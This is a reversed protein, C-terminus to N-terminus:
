GAGESVEDNKGRRGLVTRVATMLEPVSIALSAFSCLTALQCYACLAKNEDWEERGLELAVLSDILTKVGMAIPLAPNRRARDQGDAGALLATLGYNIVMLFADPTRLRKYAYDSADVRDSDFVPLPPDPLRRLIGTQYLAVIQGMTVGVMSLGIVWRRRNLDPTNGKRLEYSLQRPHM